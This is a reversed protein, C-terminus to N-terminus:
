GMQHSRMEEILDDRRRTREAVNDGSYQHIMRESKQTGLLDDVSDPDIEVMVYPHPPFASADMPDKIITARGRLSWVLDEGLTVVSARGSNRIDELTRGRGWAAFRLRHDPLVICSGVVSTYPTGDPEITAIMVAHGGVLYDHIQQPLEIDAM